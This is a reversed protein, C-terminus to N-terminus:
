FSCTFLLTISPLILFRLLFPSLPFHSFFSFFQLSVFHLPSEKSNRIMCLSTLSRRPVLIAVQLPPCHHSERTGQHYQCRGSCSSCAGWVSLAVNDKWILLLSMCVSQNACRCLCPMSGQALGPLMRFVDPGSSGGSSTETETRIHPTGM